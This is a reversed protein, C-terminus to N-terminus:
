KAVTDVFRTWFRTGSANVGGFRVAFSKLQKGSLDVSPIGAGGAMAFAMFTIFAIAIFFAMFCAPPALFAIFAIFSIFGFVSV